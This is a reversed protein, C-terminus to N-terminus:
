KFYSGNVNKIDTITMCEKTSQEQLECKLREPIDKSGVLTIYRCDSTIIDVQPVGNINYNGLNINHFSYYWQTYQKSYAEMLPSVLACHPCTPSYYYDVKPSCVNSVSNDNFASICLASVLVVGLFLILMLKKM